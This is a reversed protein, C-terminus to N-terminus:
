IKFKNLYNELQKMYKGSTFYTAATAATAADTAADAHADVSAAHAAARRLALREELPQDQATKEREPGHVAPPLATFCALKPLHRAWTM